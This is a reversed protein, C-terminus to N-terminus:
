DSLASVIAEIKEPSLRAKKDKLRTRIWDKLQRAHMTPTDANEADVEADHTFVLLAQPEPLDMDPVEKALYNSVRLVDSKIELDPRGLGEQAFIKLYNLRFGGRQRWRGNEFTINGSQYRPLIVFIGAPGVMLHATPGHHHFLHFRKDLGKLSQDLVDNPRRRPAYRNGLYIGIQSVMFGILLAAISIFVMEPNTLNLILGGALALFGIGSAYKAITANREIRKENTIVQM